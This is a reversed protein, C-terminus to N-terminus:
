AGGFWDARAEWSERGALLDFAEETVCVFNDKWEVRVLILGRQELANLDIPTWTPPFNTHWVCEGKRAGRQQDIGEMARRAHAQLCRREAETLDSM